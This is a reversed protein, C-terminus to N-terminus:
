TRLVNRSRRVMVGFWVWMIAAGIGFACRAVTPNAPAEATFSTSVTFPGEAFLAMWTGILAFLGVIALVTFHQALRIWRPADPALAGRADARGVAQVVIAFGALGFALGCCAVIWGPAHQDGPPPLMRAGVLLLYLGVGCCAAGWLATSASARQLQPQM